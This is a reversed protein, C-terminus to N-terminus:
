LKKMAETLNIVAPKGAATPQATQRLVSLVQAPKLQPHEALIRAAVGAALAASYSTGDSLQLKDVSSKIPIKEGPAWLVDKGRQTFASPEGTVGISAVTAIQASVTEGEFAVPEGPQNGAANVILMDAALSAFLQKYIPSRLPGLTILLVDPKAKALANIESLLESESMQGSQAQSPAFVFRAKPAVLRVTNVVSQLYEGMMRDPDVSRKGGVLEFEDASLTGAPPLGGLVAVRPAGTMAQSKVGIASLPWSPMGQMPGAAALETTAKTDTVRLTLLKIRASLEAYQESRPKCVALSRTYLDIAREPKGANDALAAGLQLLECWRPTKAILQDIHGYLVAFESEASRGRKVQQHLTAARSLTSLLLQFESTELAEVEPVRNAFQKQALAYALASIIRENPLPETGADTLEVWLTQRGGGWASSVLAHGKGNEVAVQLVDDRSLSRQMWSVVGGLEVGAIKMDLQIPEFLREPLDPARVVMVAQPQVQPAVPAKLQDASASMEQQIKSLRALLMIALVQGIRGDQDAAGIVRIPAIMRPLERPSFSDIAIRVIWLNVVLWALAAIGYLSLKQLTDM